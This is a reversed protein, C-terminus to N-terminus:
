FSKKQAVGEVCGGGAAIMIIQNMQSNLEAKM